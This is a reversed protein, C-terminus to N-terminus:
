PSTAVTDRGSVLLVIHAITLGPSLPLVDVASHADCIMAAIGTEHEEFPALVADTVRADM